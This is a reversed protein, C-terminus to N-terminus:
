AEPNAAETNEEAAEASASAEKAAMEARKKAIEQARVERVKSEADLRQKLADRKDKALADVKAKVKADKETMWAQFKAEATDLTIAGKRVGDLLHKKM